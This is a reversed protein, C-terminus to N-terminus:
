ERDNNSQCDIKLMPMQIVKGGFKLTNGVSSCVMIINVCAVSCHISHSYVICVHRWVHMGYPVAYIPQMCIHRAMCMSWCSMGTSKFGIAETTDFPPKPRRWVSASM